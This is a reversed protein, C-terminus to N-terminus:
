IWVWPWQVLHTGSEIWSCKPLSNLCSLGIACLIYNPICAQDRQGATCKGKGSCHFHVCWIRCDRMWTLCWLWSFSNKPHFAGVVHVLIQGSRSRPQEMLFINVAVHLRTLSHPQLTFSQQQFRWLYLQATVCLVHGAKKPSPDLANCLADSIKGALFQVNEVSLSSGPGLFVTLSSWFDRLMSLQHRM